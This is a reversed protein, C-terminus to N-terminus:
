HVDLGDLDVLYQDFANLATEAKRWDFTDRWHAVLQKLYERETGWSWDADNIQDPWRTRELRARLDALAADDICLQFPRLTHSMDNGIPLTHSIDNGIAHM